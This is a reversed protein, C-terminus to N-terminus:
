EDNIVKKYLNDRVEITAKKSVDRESFDYYINVQVKASGEHFKSTEEQSLNLSIKGNETDIELDDEFKNVLVGGQEFSIVIKKYSDLVDSPTFSITLPKTEYTYFHAM